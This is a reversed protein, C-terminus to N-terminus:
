WCVPRIRIRSLLEEIEVLRRAGRWLFSGTSWLVQRWYWRRASPLGSSKLRDEFREALDGLVAERMSAACFLSILKEAWAPIEASAADLSELEDQCEKLLRMHEEASLRIIDTLKDRFEKSTADLDIEPAEGIAKDAWWRLFEAEVAEAKIRESLKRGDEDQKDSV